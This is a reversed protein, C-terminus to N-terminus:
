WSDKKFSGFKGKKKTKKGKPFYPSKKFSAKKKIGGGSRKYSNNFASARKGRWGSAGAGRRGTSTSPRDAEQVAEFDIVQDDDGNEDEEDLGDFLGGADKQAKLIEKYTECVSLYRKGYKDFIAKTVTPITLMEAENTPLRKSMERLTELPLLNHHHVGLEQGIERSVAELAEYALNFVNNSVEDDVARIPLKKQKVTKKNQVIPFEFYADPDSYFRKAQDGLRVYTAIFDHAVLKPEEKILNKSMMKQLLREPVNNKKDGKKFRGYVKLNQHGESLLKQNASGKLVEVLQNITIDKKQSSLITFICQLIAKM